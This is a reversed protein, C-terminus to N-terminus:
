ATVNMWKGMDWVKLVRNCDVYFPDNDGFIYMGMGDRWQDVILDIQDDRLVVTSTSILWLQNADTLEDALRAPTVIKVTFGKEQEWCRWPAM